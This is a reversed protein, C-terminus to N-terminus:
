SNVIATVIFNKGPADTFLAQHSFCRVEVGAHDSLPRFFQNAAGGVGEMRSNDFTLDTAGLRKFIGNAIVYAFGEKVCPHSKITVTGTQNHFKISEAGMEYTMNGDQKDYRRLASLDSMMNAWATPNIYATMPGSAGKATTLACGKLLRTFTLEGSAASITNAKWLNFTTASIGFLTGTNTLIKHLGVMVNWEITSDTNRQGAFFIVDNAATLAPATTSLTLTRADLDVSDLIADEPTPAAAGRGTVPPSAPAFFNLLAGEMGAWIGPAWSATTLTLVDPPGVTVASIVGLGADAQGYLLDIELRRRMSELMNRVVVGMTNEFAQPEGEGAFLSEYDVAARLVHQSGTIEAPRIKGAKPSKISFAGAGSKAYTVGQELGIVVPQNFVLGQRKARKFPIDMQLQTFEPIVNELKDGYIKKFLGNLTALSGDGFIHAGTSAAM